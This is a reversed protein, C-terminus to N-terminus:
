LWPGHCFSGWNILLLPLGLGDWVALIRPLKIAYRGSLSIPSLTYLDQMKFMGPIVAFCNKLMIGNMVKLEPLAIFVFLALGIVSFMEFSLMVVFDKMSCRKVSKFIVDKSKFILTAFEPVAFSIFICWIWVVQLFFKLLNKNLGFM